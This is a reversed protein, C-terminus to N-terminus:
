SGQQLLLQLTRHCRAGNPTRFDSRKSADLDCRRGALRPLRYRLFRPTKSARYSQSRRNPMTNTNNTQSAHASQSTGRPAGAKRETPALETLHHGAVAVHLVEALCTTGWAAQWTASVRGFLDESGSSQVELSNTMSTLLFPEIDVDDLLSRLRFCSRTALQMDDDCVMVCACM